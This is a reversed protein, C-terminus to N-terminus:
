ILEVAQRAARINARPAITPLVCGTGLIFRTGHTALIADTAEAMVREPTGLVMTAERQLGGCVVGSFQMKAEALDPKTDRDHWNIVQVPYDAVLNFMVQNGHLHLMNLWMDETAQLISLDFERGFEYYEAVTLLAYSAHQLAFFIGAIGIKKAADIFRITGETIIQLGEKVAEPYKRLHYILSNGGALNKAQSLPNFITQIVPTDPNLGRCIMELCVLQNSLHGHYPDLIELHSWDDPSNIRRKTYDRTGETAGNWADEVGWDKLCFSSAPTVKVLDFDYLRQFELTAEALNEPKQDDVPFHRWLAVPTRDPKVGSLCLELRQRHTIPHAEM